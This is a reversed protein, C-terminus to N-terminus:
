QNQAESARFTVPDMTARSNTFQAHSEGYIGAESLLPSDARDLAVYFSGGPMVQMREQYFQRPLLSLGAIYAVPLVVTWALWLDHCWDDLPDRGTAKDWLELGSRVQFFAFGIILLGFGAHLLNSPPHPVDKPVLGEAKRRHIYRGLWIQLFYLPPLFLGCIQHTSLFHSGESSAVALPGFLWGIVIIPLAISMNIISHAKFWKVTFTRSWRAILSGAPLLVLFGFSLLVGHAVILKEHGGFATTPGVTSHVTASNGANPPPPVSNGGNGSTTQQGDFPPPMPVAEKSFDINLFGAQYHALLETNLLKSGPNTMGYAWILHEVPDDALATLNARMDFAMRISGEPHWSSAGPPIARAVRLPTPIFVPEVHNPRGYRHSLSFTGDDNPWVVVMPTGEMKGGWGLALWGIPPYLGTLQYTIRNNEGLTANVCIFTNCGSDGKLASVKPLYQLCLLSIIAPLLSPLLM